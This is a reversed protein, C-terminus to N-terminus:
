PWLLSDAEASFPHPKNKTSDTTATAHRMKSLTGVSTPPANTTNTMTQKTDTVWCCRMIRMKSRAVKMRRRAAYARAAAAAAARLGGAAAAAASAAAAAAPPPLRARHSRPPRDIELRVIKVRAISRAVSAATIRPWARNRKSMKPSSTTASERHSRTHLPSHYQRIATRVSCENFTPGFVMPTYRYPSTSYRSNCGFPNWPTASTAQMHRIKWAMSCRQFRNSTGAMRVPCTDTSCGRLSGVPSGRADKPAIPILPM